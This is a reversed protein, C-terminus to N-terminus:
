DKGHGLSLYKKPGMEMLRSVTRDFKFRGDGEAYLADPAADASALFKVNYKYLADILTVFRDSENCNNSEFMPIGVMIVTHFRSAIALYNSAGRAEACLKKFSVVAVSKLAKPVHLM